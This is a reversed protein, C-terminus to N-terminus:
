ERAQRIARVLVSQVLCGERRDELRQAQQVLDRQNNALKLHLPALNGPPQIASVGATKSPHMGVIERNFGGCLYVDPLPHRRPWNKTHFFLRGFDSKVANSNADLTNSLVFGEAALM